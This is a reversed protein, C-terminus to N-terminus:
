LGSWERERARAKSIRIHESIRQRKAELKKRRVFEIRESLAEAKSVSKGALILTTKEEVVKGNLEALEDDLEEALINLKSSADLWVSPPVSEKNEIVRKFWNLITDITIFDDDRIGETLM